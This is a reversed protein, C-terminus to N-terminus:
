VIKNILALFEIAHKTSQKKLSSKKKNFILEETQLDFWYTPDYFEEHEPIKSLILQFGQKLAFYAGRNFGESSSLSIYFALESQPRIRHLEEPSILKANLQEILQTKDQLATGVIHINSFDIKDSYRHMVNPLMCFNKRDTEVGIILASALIKEDETVCTAPATMVDLNTLKSYNNVKLRKPLSDSIYIINGFFNCMKFQLKNYVRRMLSNQVLPYDDHLFYFVKRKLKFRITPVITISDWSYRTLSKVTKEENIGLENNFKEDNIITSCYGNKELFKQLNRAFYYLGNKAKVDGLDILIDKM